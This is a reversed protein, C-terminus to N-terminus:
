LLYGPCLYRATSKSVMAIQHLSAPFLDREELVSASAVTRARQQTCSTTQSLRSRRNMCGSTLHTHTVYLQTDDAYFHLCVINYLVRACSSRPSFGGKLEGNRSVGRTSGREDVGAPASTDRVREGLCVCM